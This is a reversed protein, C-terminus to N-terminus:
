MSGEEVFRRRAIREHSTTSGVSPAAVVAVRTRDGLAGFGIELGGTDAVGGVEARFGFEENEVRDLPIDVHRSAVQFDGGFGGPRRALLGFAAAAGAM